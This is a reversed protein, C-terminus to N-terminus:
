AEKEAAFAAVEPQYAAEGGALFRESFAAWRDPDGAAEVYARQFAEDRDYDPV